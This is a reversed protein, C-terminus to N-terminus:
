GRQHSIIDDIVLTRIKDSITQSPNLLRCLEVYESETLTAHIVRRRSKDDTLRPRGVRRREM